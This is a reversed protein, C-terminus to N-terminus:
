LIECTTFVTNGGERRKGIQNFEITGTILQMRERRKGCTKTRDIAGCIVEMPEGLKRFSETDEITFLIRYFDKRLKRAIKSIEHPLDISIGNLQLIRIWLHHFHDICPYLAPCLSQFLL